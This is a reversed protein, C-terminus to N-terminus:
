TLEYTQMEDYVDASYLWPGITDARSFGEATLQLTDGRWTALGHDCLEELEPFDVMLPNGSWAQYNKASLGDCRLISKIVYRRRQEAATLTCGYIAHSHETQSRGVYDHIIELIGPRGVAYETCYHVAQTYSRAGAGLGVMGDEQCCYQASESAELLCTELRFLRMSIQRYGRELLYDRGTLYLQHRLDSPDRGIRDLGTLPRVYLPYLFIEEPLYSV